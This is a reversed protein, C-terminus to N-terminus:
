NHFSILNHLTKWHQTIHQSLFHFNLIWVFLKHEIFVFFRISLRIFDSLRYIIYYHYDLTILSRARKGNIVSIKEGALQLTGLSKPPHPEFYFFNYCDSLNPPPPPASSNVGSINQFKVCIKWTFILYKSAIIDQKSASKLANKSFFKIFNVPNPTTM